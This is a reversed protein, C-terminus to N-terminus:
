KFIDNFHFIKKIKQPHRPPIPLKTWELFLKLIFFFNKSIKLNKPSLSPTHTIEIFM